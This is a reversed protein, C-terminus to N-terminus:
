GGAGAKTAVIDHLGVAAAGAVVGTLAAQLLDGRALGLTLAALIALGVGFGVAVIPGFRDKTAPAVNATRWFVECVLWTAASNGGVTLLSAITPADM